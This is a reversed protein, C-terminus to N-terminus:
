KKAGEDLKLKDTSNFSFERKATVDETGSVVDPTTTGWDSVDKEDDDDKGDVSGVAMYLQESEPPDLQQQYPQVIVVKIKDDAVMIAAASNHGGCYHSSSFVTLVKAGKTIEVGLDKRQHARM